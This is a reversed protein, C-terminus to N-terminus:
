GPVGLVSIVSNQALYGSILQWHAGLSFTATSTEKPAAMVPARARDQMFCTPTFTAASGSYVAAYVPTFAPRTIAAASSGKMCELWFSCSERMIARLLWMGM